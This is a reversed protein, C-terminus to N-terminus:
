AMDGFKTQRGGWRYGICQCRDLRWISEDIYREREIRQV